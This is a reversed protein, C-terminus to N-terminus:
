KKLKVQIQFNRRHSQTVKKDTWNKMTGQGLKLKNEALSFTGYEKKGWSRVQIKFQGILDDMTFGPRIQFVSLDNGEASHLQTKSIFDEKITEVIKKETEDLIKKKEGYLLIRYNFYMCALKDLDRFGGDFKEAYDELFKELTANKPPVAFHEFGETNEFNMKQWTSHFDKVVSGNEKKYSPFEVVLQSIRDWFLGHLQNEDERLVEIDKSSTFVLRVNFKKEVGFKGDTTSLAIFLLDQQEETLREVDEIVLTQNQHKKLLTDIEAVSSPIKVASIFELKEVCLKKRNATKIERFANEIAFHKGTGRAGVVILCFKGPNVLFVKLRKYAQERLPSGVTVIQNM